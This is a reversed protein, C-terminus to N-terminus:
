TWKVWIEIRPYGPFELPVDLKLQTYVVVQPDAELGDAVKKFSGMGVVRRHFSLGWKMLDTRKEESLESALLPKLTGIALLTLIGFGALKTIISWKLLYLVLMLSVYLATTAVVSLRKKTREGIM